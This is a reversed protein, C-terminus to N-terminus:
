KRSGGVCVYEDNRLECTAEDDELDDICDICEPGCFSPDTLSACVGGGFPAENGCLHYGEECECHAPLSVADGVGSGPRCTSSSYDNDPDEQPCTWGCAGCNYIDGGAWDYDLDLGDINACYSLANEPECLTYLYPCVCEDGRCEAGAPCPTCSDGCVPRACEDGVQCTFGDPCYCDYNGECVSLTPCEFGCQGCNDNDNELDACFGPSCLTRGAACVQQVTAAVTGAVNVDATVTAVIGVNVPSGGRFSGYARWGGRPGRQTLQVGHQLLNMNPMAAMDANEVMRAKSSQKADTLGALGAALTLLTAGKFGKM